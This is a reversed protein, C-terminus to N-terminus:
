SSNATKTCPRYRANEGASRCVVGRPEDVTGPVQVPLAKDSWLPATGLFGM